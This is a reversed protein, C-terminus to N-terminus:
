GGPARSVPLQWKGAGEARGPRGPRPLRLSTVPGAWRGAPPRATAGPAPRVRRRWPWQDGGARRYSRRRPRREPGPPAPGPAPPVTRGQGAALGPAHWHPGPWRSSHDLRGRYRRVTGLRRAPPWARCQSAPRQGRRQPPGAEASAASEARFQYDVPAPGADTREPFPRQTWEFNAPQSSPHISPHISAPHTSELTLAPHAAHPQSQVSM